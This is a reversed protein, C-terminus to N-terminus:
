FCNYALVIVSNEVQRRIVGKARMRGPTDHLDAFHVAVQQFVGFLAKERMKIQSAYCTSFFDLFLVDLAHLPLHPCFFCIVM